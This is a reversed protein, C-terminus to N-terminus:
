ASAAELMSMPSSTPVVKMLEFGTSGLIARYEVETREQGSTLVLMTIDVLKGVAPDNGPPIVREIVLLRASSRMAARCTKLIAVAREDGWDHLIDKLIYADGGQPVSEFFDGAVMDCRDAIGAAALRERAGALVSPQEFLLGRVHRHTKLITALLMGRGGGVRKSWREAEAISLAM